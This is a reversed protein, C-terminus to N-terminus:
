IGNDKFFREWKELLRQGLAIADVTEGDVVLSYSGGGAWPTVGWMAVGWAAPPTCHTTTTLPDGKRLHKSKNCIHNCTQFDPDKYFADIAVSSAKGQAKVYDMIHYATVYFNVVADIDPSSKMRDFERKAKEYM